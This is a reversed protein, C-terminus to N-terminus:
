GESGVDDGESVYVTEALASTVYVLEGFSDLGFCDATGDGDIDVDSPLLPREVGDARYGHLIGRIAQYDERSLDAAPTSM